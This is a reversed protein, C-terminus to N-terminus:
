SDGDKLLCLVCKINKQPCSYNGSRCGCSTGLSILTLRTFGLRVVGFLGTSSSPGRGAKKQSVWFDQVSGHASFLKGLEEQIGQFNSVFLETPGFAM